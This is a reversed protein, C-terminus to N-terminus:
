LNNQSITAANHRKKEQKGTTKADISMIKVFNESYSVYDQCLKGFIICHHYIHALKM